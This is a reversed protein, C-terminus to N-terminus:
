TLKESVKPKRIKFLFADKTRPSSAVEIEILASISGTDIKGIVLRFVTM